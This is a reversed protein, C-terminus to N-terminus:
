RFGRSEWGSKSWRVSSRLIGGDIRVFCSIPLKIIRDTHANARVTRHPSLVVPSALVVSLLAITPALATALRPRASRLSCDFYALM